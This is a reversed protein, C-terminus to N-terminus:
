NKIIIICKKEKTFCKEDCYEVDKAIHIKFSTEYYLMDGGCLQLFLLM